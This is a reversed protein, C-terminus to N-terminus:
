NLDFFSIPDDTEVRLSCVVQAVDVSMLKCSTVLAWNNLALSM